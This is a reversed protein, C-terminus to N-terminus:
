SENKDELLEHNYGWCHEIEIYRTTNGSAKDKFEALIDDICDTCINSDQISDISDNGWDHHGTTVDYWEVRDNSIKRINKFECSIKRKIIKKCKDCCLETIYPVKQEVMTSKYQIKESM